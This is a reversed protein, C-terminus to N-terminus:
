SMTASAIPTSSPQATASASGGSSLRRYVEESSYNRDQGRIRGDRFLEGAGDLARAGARRRKAIGGLLQQDIDGAQADGRPPGVIHVGRERAPFAGPGASRDAM